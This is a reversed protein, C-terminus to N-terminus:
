RKGTLAESVRGINIGFHNGITVYNAKPNRRAFDRVARVLAPTLGSQQPAAKRVPARRFMQDVIEHIESSTEDDVRTALELLAVRCEPITMRTM